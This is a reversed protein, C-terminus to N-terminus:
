QFIIIVLNLHESFEIIFLLNTLINLNGCHLFWKILKAFLFFTNTKYKNFYEFSFFISEM